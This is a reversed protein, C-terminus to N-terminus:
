FPGLRGSFDVRTIGSPVIGVIVGGAESDGNSHRRSCSPFGERNKIVTVGFDHEFACSDLRRM